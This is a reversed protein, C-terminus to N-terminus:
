SRNNNHDVDAQGQAEGQAGAVTKVRVQGHRLSHVKVAQDQIRADGSTSTTGDSDTRPLVGGSNVRLVCIWSVDVVQRSCGLEVSMMDLKARTSDAALM